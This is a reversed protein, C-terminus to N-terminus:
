WSFSIFSLVAVAPQSHWSNCDNYPQIFVLNLISGPPIARVTGTSHDTYSSFYYYHPNLCTEDSCLMPFCTSQLSGSGSGEGCEKKSLILTRGVPFRRGVACSFQCFLDQGPSTLSFHVQSDVQLSHQYNTHSM